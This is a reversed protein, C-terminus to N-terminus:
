AGGSAATLRRRAEDGGIGAVEVAKRRGGAGRVLSVAGAPVGLAGALLAVVAANARGDEPPATVTVKLTGDSMFGVIANRRAGPSVRVELRM